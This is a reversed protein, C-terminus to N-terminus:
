YSLLVNTGTATEDTVDILSQALRTDEYENRAWMTMSTTVRQWRVTRTLGDGSPMVRAIVLALQVENTSLGRNHRRTWWQTRVVDDSLVRDIVWGRVAAPDSIWDGPEVGVAPTSGIPAIVSHARVLRGLGIPSPVVALVFERVDDPPMLNDTAIQRDLDVRDAAIAEWQIRIVDGSSSDDFLAGWARVGYPNTAVTTATANRHLFGSGSAEYESPRLVNPLNAYNDSINWSSARCGPLATGNLFGPFFEMGSAQEHEVDAPDESWPGTAARLYIIDASPAAMEDALDTPLAIGQSTARSVILASTAAVGTSDGAPWPSLRSLANNRARAASPALATAQFASQGGGGVGPYRRELFAVGALTSTAVNVFPYYRLQRDPGPTDGDVNFAVDGLVGDGNLDEGSNLVGDGNVDETPYLYWGSSAIDATISRVVQMEGLQVEHHISATASLRNSSVMAEMVGAMVVMFISLAIIIEVLSYGSRM